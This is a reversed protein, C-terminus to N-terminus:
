SAGAKDGGLISTWLPDDALGQEVLMEHGGKGRAAAEDALAPLTESPSRVPEPRRVADPEGEPAEEKTAAARPVKPPLKAGESRAISADGRIFPISAITPPPDVDGRARISDSKGARLEDLVPAAMALGDRIARIMKPTVFPKGLLIARQQSLKHALVAYETIGQSEEELADRIRPTFPATETTYQYQWFVKHFESLDAGTESRGLILDGESAGRRAQRFQAGIIPIGDVGGILLLPVGVTNVLQVLFSLIAGSGRPNLDHIEDLALLGLGHQSAVRAMGLIIQQINARKSQYAREYHTPAGIAAHLRDVAEFFSSTLSLISANSPANLSIYPIQTLPLARGQYRRHIIINPYLKLCMQLAATKGMGSTGLFAMGSAVEPYSADPEYSGLVQVDSRSGTIELAALRADVSRQFSVNAPNRAVYGNRILRSIRSHLEAHLGIPHRIFKVIGVMEERVAADLQRHEPLYPPYFAMQEIAKERSITPPLAEILPNGSYHPVPTPTYVAEVARVSPDVRSKFDDRCAESRSSM